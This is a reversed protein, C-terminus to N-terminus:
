PTAGTKTETLRILIPPNGGSGGDLIDDFIYRAPRLEEPTLTRRIMAEENEDGNWCSFILPESDVELAARAIRRLTAFAAERYATNPDAPDYGKELEWPLISDLFVCSCCWADQSKTVVGYVANKEALARPRNQPEPELGEEGKPPDSFQSLRRDIGLYVILCM